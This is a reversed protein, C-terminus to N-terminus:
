ETRLAEVPDRKAAMRSPFLGAVMTLLVSIAILIIAHLPELFAALTSIGSLTQIIFNIPICLLLSFGIGFLGSALGVIITEANFVLSVDRKSAGISRLVGIEKTRELVSIYTIIGIMISSVVLSISVFAILVYSIADVIMTVGSLLLAIYDTYEIKDDERGAEIVSANYDSIIAGIADKDEFTVAYINISSPTDLSIVGLKKLLDPLTTESTKSPMYLDYYSELKVPDTESGYETDFVAAVKELKAAALAPISDSYQDYMTKADAQAVSNLAAAFAADDLTMLHTMVTEMSMTTSKTWAIAIYGMQAQKTALAPNALIQAVFYQLESVSPTNKIAEVTKEANAVYNQEIIASLADEITTKLKEDSYSDFIGVYQPYHEAIMALMKERTDLDKMMEAVAGEIYGEPPTSLITTYLATKGATDLSAFYEKIKEVKEAPTLANQETLTFPLGSVVDFNKNADDTQAKVVPTNKNEEILYETLAATYAFPSSLAGGAADDNQRVIGSIKLEIANEVNLLDSDGIYDYVKTEDNFQYFNGPLVVRLPINLVDEYEVKREAYPIKEGSMVANLMKLIDEEPMYGLAYFALDSIENKDNVILVIENKNEPWEGHILDYQEYIMDSILEGDRGPLMEQWLNIMSLDATLMNYMMDNADGEGAVNKLGESLDCPVFEGAQNKVYVHMPMSYRYQIASVYNHLETTATVANMEKDLFSKFATLNNQKKEAAFLTNFLQYLQPDSYVADNEHETKGEASDAGAGLLAAMDNEEKLISIPYSSLTDRQVSAIYANVGTSVALILAIGIIGISGAFSTLLTRARKTMLNNFSLSLATTFSMRKKGKKAEAKAKEQAKPMAAKIEDDSVPNTDSVIKGDVLRVIRTSYEEALEPNHTVMIILRDKAIEKLIGMIQVSTETDLAGTPEDALLIDPDNVLARAIAVRQMQGGSMQNPKKHLQDGLGVKELAEKARRRREAKSVGSLTLALEVNALVTQHPILNYSQFVFGISHNRYTDWDSDKYEKTSRGNIVLDGSTYVDLGGIINLLTTKGCGSPGLVSVFENDRFALDVGKLAEVTVDGATYNKKISHLQLM